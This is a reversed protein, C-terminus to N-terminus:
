PFRPAKKKQPTLTLGPGLVGHTVLRVLRSVYPGDVPAREVFVRHLLAGALTFLMLEVDAQASLEGRDIARQVIKHPLDGQAKQWGRQAIARLTPSHGDVFITRITGMGQRSKLFAGVSQTLAILDSELAGTDIVDDLHGMSHELAAAVLAQKTPWRRYVSTKNVRAKSAVDPVTLGELGVRALERLTVDLVRRVFVEGGDQRSKKLTPM